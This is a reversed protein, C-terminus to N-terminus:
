KDFYLKREPGGVAKGSAATLQIGVAPRFHVDIEDLRELRYGSEKLRLVARPGFFRLFDLWYERTPELGFYHLAESKGDAAKRWHQMGDRGLLHIEMGNEGQRSIEVRYHDPFQVSHTITSVHGCADTEKVKLTYAKLRQLANEGGHAKLVKNILQGLAPDVGFAPPFTIPNNTFTNLGPHPRLISSTMSQDLTQFSPNLLQLPLNSQFSLNPLQLPLNSQFSPKLLQIPANPMLFQPYTQFLDFNSENIGVQQPKRDVETEKSFKIFWGGDRQVWCFLMRRHTDGGGAQQGNKRFVKFRAGYTLIATREEIRVVERETTVKLDTSRFQRYSELLAPKTYRTDDTGLGFYDSAFLRGLTAVDHTSAAEWFQQDLVLLT